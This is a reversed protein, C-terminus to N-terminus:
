ASLQGSSWSEFLHRYPGESSILERHAGVQAVRGDVMVVIRDCRMATVLRHAILVVTREEFLTAMAREVLAETSPDLNSTAEDLVVVAPDVLAARALSVLQREGASLRSGREAVPTHIGSPLSRFREAAGIKELAAEVEDDSAAPRALRINEAITGQFLFGEQPVLVIRARVDEPAARRLDVGGFSVVGGDPDYLRAILKALTSKGAGTEGVLAVREGEDIELSVDVLAPRSGDYSFNVNELRVVGKAPLPIPDTPPTVRPREELLATLKRLGAAASQVINFLQSLQQVPEFLNSLTLVFFTVTGITTADRIVMWGGVGVVLATTGIGALEIVPLYLAQVRVSDMHARYLLHNRDEFLGLQERERAFAQVVRVGAIGEQLASLTNAIRDRVTLYARSSARHFWVSAAVVFPLALLCVALLPLSVVALVVVSVVLVLVNMVLMLLGTQVLEQLADVDSTVRSVIVGAKQNDFFSLDLRQLHDFVRERLDRLFGEGGRTVALIQIRYSFWGVIVALVFGVVAWRLASRDGRMIGEDIGYRVFWPGAMITSTMVTAATGGVVLERRHRRLLDWLLRARTLNVESGTGHRLEGTM